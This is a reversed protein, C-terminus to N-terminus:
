IEKREQYVCFGAVHLDTVQSFFIAQKHQVSQVLSCLFDEGIYYIHVSSKHDRYKYWWPTRM